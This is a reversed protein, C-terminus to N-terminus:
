IHFDGRATTIKESHLIETPEFKAVCTQLQNHTRSVPSPKSNGVKAAGSVADWNGGSLSFHGSGIRSLIENPTDEPGNAFPTFSCNPVPSLFVGLSYTTFVSVTSHGTSNTYAHSSHSAEQALSLNLIRPPTLRGFSVRALSSCLRSISGLHLNVPLIDPTQHM